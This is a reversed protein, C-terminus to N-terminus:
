ERARVTVELSTGTAENPMRARIRAACDAVRSAPVTVIVREGSPQASGGFERAIAALRALAASRDAVTLRLTLTAVPAGAPSRQRAAFSENAKKSEPAAPQAVNDAPPPEPKAGAVSAAGADAKERSVQERAAQDRSARAPASKDDHSDFGAFGGRSARAPASEAMAPSQPPASLPTVTESREPASAMSSPEPRGAAPKASDAPLADVAGSSAASPPSKVSPATKEPAEKRLPLAEQREASRGPPVPPADPRDALTAVPKEAPPPSSRAVDEAASPGLLWWFGVGVLLASGVVAGLAWAPAQVRASWGAWWDAWGRRAAPMTAPRRKARALITEPSAWQAPEAVDWTTGQMWRRATRLDDLLAQATTSRALLAEVERRRAEPLAGDLYDEFDGYLPHDLEPDEPLASM